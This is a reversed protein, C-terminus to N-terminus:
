IDTRYMHRRFRISEEESIDPLRAGPVSAEPEGSEATGAVDPAREEIGRAGDFESDDVAPASPAAEDFIQRLITADRPTMSVPMDDSQSEGAAVASDLGREILDLDLTDPEHVHLPDASRDCLVDVGTAAMAPAVAFMLLAAARAVIPRKASTSQM